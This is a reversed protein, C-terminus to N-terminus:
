FDSDDTFDTTRRKRASRDFPKPLRSVRVFCVAAAFGHNAEDAHDATPEVTCPQPAFGGRPARRPAQARHV